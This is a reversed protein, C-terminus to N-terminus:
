QKDESYDSFSFSCELNLKVLREMQEPWLTPGGVGRASFWICRITMKVGPINQIEKIQDIFPEIKGLLWDLHARLDKSSVKKDSSLIWSSITYKVMQGTHIRRIDDKKQKHSPEVNLKTNILEPDANYICFDVWTMDCSPDSNDILTYRSSINIM